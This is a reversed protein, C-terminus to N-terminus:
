KKTMQIVLEDKVSKVGKVHSAIKMVKRKQMVNEVNGTLTVVGKETKVSISLSNVDKSALLASKVKTTITTDSIYQGTTESKTTTTDAENSMSFAMGSAFVIPLVCLLIKSKFM